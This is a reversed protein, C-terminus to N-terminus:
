YSKELRPGWFAKHFDYLLCEYSFAFYKLLNFLFIIFYNIELLFLTNFFEDRKLTTGSHRFDSYRLNSLVPIGQLERPNSKQSNDRIVFDRVALRYNLSFLPTVNRSKLIVFLLHHWIQDFKYNRIIM